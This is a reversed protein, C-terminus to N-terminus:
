RFSHDACGKAEGSTLAANRQNRTSAYGQQGNFPPLTVRGNCVAESGKRSFRGLIFLAPRKRDASQRNWTEGAYAAREGASGDGLNTAIGIIVGTAGTSISGAEVAAIGTISWRHRRM